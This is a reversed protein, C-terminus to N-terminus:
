KVYDFMRLMTVISQERTYATSPSFQNDGVGSMIGAAQVHGVADYAWSGIRGNDTFTPAQEPMPKNMVSALRSLMTAAQERTLSTDPSFKNDGVGAVVGLFAMKQVNADTTDSFTSRGTIEKGTATEYLAVALACFETRTTATTYKSQLAEPVIGASIAANVQETAWSSPTEIPTSADDTKIGMFSVHNGNIYNYFYLIVKDYQDTSGLYNDNESYAGTIFEVTTGPECGSYAFEIWMGGETEPPIYWLALNGEAMTILTDMPVVYATMPMMGIRGSDSTWSATDIIENSLTFVDGGDSVFEIETALSPVALGVCLTLALLLSLIRKRM